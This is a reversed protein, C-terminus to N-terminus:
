LATPTATVQPTLLYLSLHLPLPSVVRTSSVTCNSHGQTHYKDQKLFHLCFDMKIFSIYPLLWGVNCHETLSDLPLSSRSTKLGTNGTYSPNPQTLLYARLANVSAERVLASLAAGSCSVVFCVIDVTNFARCSCRYPKSKTLSYLEAIWPDARGRHNNRATILSGYQM